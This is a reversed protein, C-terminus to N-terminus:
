RDFRRAERRYGRTGADLGNAAGAARRALLEGIANGISDKAGGTSTLATALASNRAPAGISGLAPAVARLGHYVAPLVGWHAGSAALAADIGANAFERKDIGGAQGATAPNGIADAATRFQNGQNQLTTLADVQSPEFVQGLKAANWQDGTQRANPLISNLADLGTGNTSTGARRYIESNTGARVASSEEPSM